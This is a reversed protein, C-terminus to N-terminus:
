NLESAEAFQVYFQLEKSNDYTIHKQDVIREHFRLLNDANKTASIDRAVIKGKYNAIMMAM